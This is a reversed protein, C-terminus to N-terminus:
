NEKVVYRHYLIATTTSLVALIILRIFLRQYDWLSEPSQKSVKRSTPIKDAPIYPECVKIKAGIKKLLEAQDPPTLQYLRILYRYLTLFARLKTCQLNTNLTERQEFLEFLIVSAQLIWRLRQDSGFQYTRAMRLQCHVRQMRYMPTIQERILDLAAQYCQRAQKEDQEKFCDDGELAKDQSDHLPIIFGSCEAIRGDLIPIWDSRGVPISLRLQKLIHRFYLYKGSKSEEDLGDWLRKNDYVIQLNNYTEELHSREASRDDDTLALGFSCQAPALSDKPLEANELDGQITLFMGRAEETDQKLLEYAAHLEQDIDFDGAAPQLGVLPAPSSEPPRTM